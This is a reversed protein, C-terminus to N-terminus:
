RKGGRKPRPSRRARGGTDACGPDHVEGERHAIRAAAIELYSPELEIGVFRRGELVAAAGTTGSGVTPDLVLGGPPCALRVLWRMLELPKVTPHPNRARAPAKGKANPFLDLVRAPLEECGADREARTAKPCYLFRSPAIRKGPHARAACADVAAATCGPACGEEGCGPEHGLIVNAPHRGAVRCGDVHLAGTGFRDITEETTGALPRRALVIPEYAPKLATARGRPYRRSKPMGEGYLWMLRDRIELGADEIGSELRHITRPSGFALLHAGPKLVRLCAEGWLRCWVEFAQNPSLRKRGSRRAAERLATGDWRENQFGIGYPPDTVIADIGASELTGLVELCDGQLLRAAPRRPGKRHCAAPDRRRRGGGAGKQESKTTM